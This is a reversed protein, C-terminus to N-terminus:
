ARPLIAYATAKHVAEVSNSARLKKRVSQLRLEIARPSVNEKAAIDLASRGEALFELVDVEKPTLAFEKAVLKHRKVSQHFFNAVPVLEDPPIVSPEDEERYFQNTVGLGSVIPDRIPTFWVLKSGRDIIFQIFEWRPNQMAQFQDRLQVLNIPFAERWDEQRQAYNDMAVGGAAVFADEVAQPATHAHVYDNQARARSHVFFGYFSITVRGSEILNHFLFVADQLTQCAAIGDDLEQFDISAM